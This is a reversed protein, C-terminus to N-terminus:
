IVCVKVCFGKKTKGRDTTTAKIPRQEGCFYLRILFAGAVHERWAGAEPWLM